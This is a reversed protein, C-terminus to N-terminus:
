RYKSSTAAAARQGGLSVTELPHAQATEGAGRFNLTGSSEGHSTFLHLPQWESCLCSQSVWGSWTKRGHAAVQKHPWGADIRCDSLARAAPLSLVPSTQTGSHCHSASHSALRSFRGQSHCSPFFAGKEWSGNCRLDRGLFTFYLVNGM